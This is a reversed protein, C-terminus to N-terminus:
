IRAVRTPEASPLPAERLPSERRRLIEGAGAAAAGLVLLVIGITLAAAGGRERAASLQLTAGDFPVRASMQFHHEEGGLVLPGALGGPMGTLAGALGAKQLRERLGDLSVRRRIVVRGNAGGGDAYMPVVQAGAVVALDGREALSVPPAELEIAQAKAPARLLT